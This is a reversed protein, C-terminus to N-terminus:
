CHISQCMSLEVGASQKETLGLDFMLNDYVMCDAPYNNTKPGPTRDIQALPVFQNINLVRLVYLMPIVLLVFLAPVLKQFIFMGISDCNRNFKNFFVANGGLNTLTCNKIACNVAGEYLVAGGRYITWDSRLLPEKNQMFTRLTQTLTLGEITINSVPRKKLAKSNLYILLRRLKLNQPKSILIM